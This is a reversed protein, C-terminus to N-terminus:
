IRCQTEDSLSTAAVTGAGKINASPQGRVM